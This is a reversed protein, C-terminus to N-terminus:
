KVYIETNAFIFIYGYPIHPFLAAAPFALPGPAAAVLGELLQLVV